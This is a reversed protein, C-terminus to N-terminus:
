VILIPKRIHLLGQDVLFYELLPMCRLIEVVIKLLNLTLRSSSQCFNSESLMHGLKGKEQSKQNIVPSNNFKTTYSVAM